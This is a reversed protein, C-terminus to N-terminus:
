RELWTLGLDTTVFSSSPTVVYAVNDLTPHFTIGILPFQPLSSNNTPLTGHRNSWTVGADGSFWLANAEDKTTGSDRRYVVFIQEPHNRNVSIRVIQNQPMEATNLLHWDFSTSLQRDADNWTIAGTLTDSAAFRGLIGGAYTKWTGNGFQVTDVTNVTYTFPGSM